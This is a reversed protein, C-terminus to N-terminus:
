FSAHYLSQPLNANLTEEDFKEAEALAQSASFSLKAVGPVGVDATFGTLLSRAVKGITAATKRAIGGEDPNRVAWAALAARVEDLLPVILHEEKEYRWASFWVPIALNEDLEQEIAQMLTTKGSGWTGFLGIAFQPDSREIIEKFARAQQDFALAPNESPLDLIIRYEATSM